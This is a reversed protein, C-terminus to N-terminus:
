ARPQEALYEIRCTMGPKLATVQLGQFAHPLRSLEVRLVAENRNVAREAFGPVARAVAKHQPVELLDCRRRRNAAEGASFTHDRLSRGNRDPCAPRRDGGPNDPKGQPETVSRVARPFACQIGDSLGRRLHGACPRYRDVSSRCCTTALLRADAGCDVTRDRWAM